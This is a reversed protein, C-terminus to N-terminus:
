DNEILGNRGRSYAGPQLRQVAREKKADQFWTFVQPGSSRRHAWQFERIHIRLDNDIEM